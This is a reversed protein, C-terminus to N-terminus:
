LFELHHPFLLFNPLCILVRGIFSCKVSVKSRLFAIIVSYCLIYIWFSCNRCYTSDKFAWSARSQENHFAALVEALWSSRLRGNSCQDIVPCSWKIPDSPYLLANRSEDKYLKKMWRHLYQIHYLNSQCLVLGLSVKWIELFALSVLCVSLVLSLPWWILFCILVPSHNLLEPPTLPVNLFDMIYIVMRM